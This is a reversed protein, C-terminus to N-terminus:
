LWAICARAQSRCLRTMRSCCSHNPPPGASWRPRRRLRCRPRSLLISTPGSAVAMRAPLAGVQAALRLIRRAKEDLVSEDLAGSRVAAALAAGFFRSPGPMELDLGALAGAVTDHTAFWDSMLVGDWAWESRMVDHVLHLHDSCYVGNVRNYASMM